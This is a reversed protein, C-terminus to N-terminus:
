PTVNESIDIKESESLAIPSLARESEQHLVTLSYLDQINKRM